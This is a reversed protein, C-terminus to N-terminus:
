TQLTGTAGWSMLVNISQNISQNITYCEEEEEEECFAPKATVAAAHCCGCVSWCGLLITPLSHKGPMVMWLPSQPLNNAFNASAMAKVPSPDATILLM